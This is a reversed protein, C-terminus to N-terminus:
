RPATAGSRQDDRARVAGLANSRVLSAATRARRTGRARLIEVLSAGSRSRKTDASRQPRREFLPGLHRDRRDIESRLSRGAVRTLGLWRAAEVGRNSDRVA